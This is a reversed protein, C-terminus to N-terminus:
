GDIGELTGVAEEIEECALAGFGCAVFLLCVIEIGRLTAEIWDM